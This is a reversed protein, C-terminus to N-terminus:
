ESEFHRDKILQSVRNEAYTKEPSKLTDEQSIYLEFMELAAKSDQYYIDYSKALHYNLINRASFKKAMRFSEIAEQHDDGEQQMLGLREYYTGLNGSIAKNLAQGYQVTAMDIQGLKEMSLGMYYHPYDLENLTNSLTRLIEIAEEYRGLHYLSIGTYRMALLPPDDKMLPDLWGIADEWKESDFALKAKTLLSFRNLPDLDLARNLLSDADDYQRFDLLLKAFGTITILDLSDNQYALSYYALAKDLKMSQVASEAAERYFYANTPNIIILQEYLELADSNSAKLLEASALLSPVHTSDIQLAKNLNEIAEKKRGKKILAKATLYYANINGNNNLKWKEGINIATQIQGNEMATSFQSYFDSDEQQALLSTLLFSFLLLTFLKKM